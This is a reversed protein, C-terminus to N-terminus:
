ISASFKFTFFSLDFVGSDFLFLSALVDLHFIFAFLRLLSFLGYALSGFGLCLQFLKLLVILSKVAFVPKSKVSAVVLQYGKHGV